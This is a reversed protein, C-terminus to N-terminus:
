VKHINPRGRYLPARFKSTARTLYVFLELRPRGPAKALTEIRDFEKQFLLFDDLTPMVCM